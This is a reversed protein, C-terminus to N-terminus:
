PLPQLDPEVWGLRAAPSELLSKSYYTRPLNRDGFKAILQDALDEDSLGDGASDLFAAIVAVYFRTITEHYGAEHSNVGGTSENYSRIARRLEMLAPGPGLRKVHWLGVRLHAEHTWSSKPLMCKRFDDVLREM